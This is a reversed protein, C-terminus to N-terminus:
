NTVAARVMSPKGCLKRARISPSGRRIAIAMVGSRDLLARNAPLPITPLFKETRSFGSQIKGNPVELKQADEHLGRDGVSFYLYDGLFEM